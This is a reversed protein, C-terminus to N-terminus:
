ETCLLAVSLTVNNEIALRMKIELGWEALLPHDRVKRISLFAMRKPCLPFSVYREAPTSTLGKYGHAPVMEGPRRVGMASSVQPRKEACHPTMIVGGQERFRPDVWRRYSRQTELM